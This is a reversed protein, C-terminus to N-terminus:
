NYNKILDESTYRVSIVNILVTLKKTNLACLELILIAANFTKKHNEHTQTNQQFKSAFSGHDNLM